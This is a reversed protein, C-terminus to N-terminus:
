PLGYTVKFAAAVRSPQREVCVPVAFPYSRICSSGIDMVEAMGMISNQDVYLGYKVKVREEGGTQGM